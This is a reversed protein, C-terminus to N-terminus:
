HDSSDFSANPMGRSKLRPQITNPVSNIGWDILSRGFLVIPYRSFEHARFLGHM